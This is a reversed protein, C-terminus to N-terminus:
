MTKVTRTDLFWMLSTHGDKTLLTALVGYELKETHLILYEITAYTIFQERPIHKLHARLGDECIPCNWQYHITRDDKHDIVTLRKDTHHTHCRPLSHLKSLIHEYLSAGEYRTEPYDGYDRDYMLCAKKLEKLSITNM